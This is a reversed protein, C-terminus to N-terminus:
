LDLAGTRKPSGLKMGLVQRYVVTLLELRLPDRGEARHVGSVSITCLCVYLCGSMRM